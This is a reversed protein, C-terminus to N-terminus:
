ARDLRLPSIPNGYIDRAASDSKRWSPVALRCNSPGPQRCRRSRFAERFAPKTGCTESQAKIMPAGGKSDKAWFPVLGWRLDALERADNHARIVFSNQTPAYQVASLPLQVNTDAM